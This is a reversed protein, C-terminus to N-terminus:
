TLVIERVVKSKDGEFTHKNIKYCVKIGTNKFAIQSTRSNTCSTCYTVMWHASQTDAFSNLIDYICSFTRYKPGRNHIRTTGPQSVPADGSTCLFSPSFCWTWLTKFEVKTTSFLTPIRYIPLTIFKMSHWYQSFLSLRNGQTMELSQSKWNYHLVCNM